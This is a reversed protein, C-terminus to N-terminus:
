VLANLPLEFGLSGYSEATAIVQLFPNYNINMFRVTVYVPTSSIRLLSFSTM